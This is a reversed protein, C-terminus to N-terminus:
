ESSYKFEQNKQKSKLWIIKKKTKNSGSPSYKHLVWLKIREKNCQLINVNKTFVKISRSTCNQSKSDTILKKPFVM